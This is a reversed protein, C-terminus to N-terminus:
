LCEVPVRWTKQQKVNCNTVANANLNSRAWHCIIMELFLINCVGQVNCWVCQVNRWVCQVNRWVTVLVQEATLSSIISGDQSHGNVIIGTSCGCSGEQAGDWKERAQQMLPNTHLSAMGQSRGWSISHPRINCWQLGFDQSSPFHIALSTVYLVATALTVQIRVVYMNIAQQRGKRLSQNVKQFEILEEPQFWALFRKLWPHWDYHGSCIERPKFM